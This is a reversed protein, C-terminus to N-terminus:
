MGKMMDVLNRVQQRQGRLTAKKSGLTINVVSEPGDSPQGEEASARSSVAGVLGGTAFRPVMMNNLSDFFGVGFNRVAAARIIYEGRSLRAPISDSTETGPGWVFGGSAYQQAEQATQLTAKITIQIAELQNKIANAANALESQDVVTIIKSTIGGAFQSDIQAKAEAASANDLEVKVQTIQEKAMGEIAKAVEKLAETMREYVAAQEQASRLAEAKEKKLAEEIQAHGETVLQAAAAREEMSRSEDTAIQKALEIEEGALRKAKEMDGSRFAEAAAERKQYLEVVLDAKRQEDDMFSRAVERENKAQSERNAVIAQEISKAKEMYQQFKQLAENQVQELSKYHKQAMSLREALTAQDIAKLAVLKEAETRSSEAVLQKKVNTALRLNRVDEQYKTNLESFVDLQKSIDIQAIQASADKFSVLGLRMRAIAGAATDANLGLQAMATAFARSGQAQSNQVDRIAQMANQVTAMRASFGKMAEDLKKIEAEQQQFQMTLKLQKMYEPIKGGASAVANMAEELRRMAVAIEEPTKAKAAMANLANEVDLLSARVERTQGNFSQVFPKQFLDTTTKVAAAVSAFDQSVQTGDIITIKDLGAAKKAEEFQDGIKKFEMNLTNQEVSPAEMKADIQLRVPESVTAKLDAVERNVDKFKKEAIAAAAELKKVEDVSGTGNAVAERAAALEERVKALAEKQEFFKVALEDAKNLAESTDVQGVANWADKTQDFAHAVRYNADEIKKGWEEWEKKAAKPGKTMLAWAAAVARGMKAHILEVQASLWGFSDMIAAVVVAAADSVPKFSRLFVGIEWGVFLAAGLSAIGMLAVKLGAVAVGAYQMALAIVRSAGAAATGLAPFMAIVATIAARLPAFLSAGMSVIFRSMAATAANAAVTFGALAGRGVVTSLGFADMTVTGTALAASLTAMAAAGGFLSSFFAAISGLVAVAKFAAWAAVLGIVVDKHEVIVKTTDVLIAMLGRMVNGLGRAFDGSSGMEESAKTIVKIFDTVGEVIALYAPLLNDGLTKQLEEQYRSLSAAQKAASGMSAEYTGALKASEVLVANMVGQQKEQKTLESVTKGVSAAYKRQAEEMDVTLGMFRLGQSDMQQINVILRQFTDSSNQGTVVALDQAARALEAAKYGTQANILGAQILKTISDRSSSATIGMKQVSKDMENLIPTSIGANNGVQKLVIALQDARGAVDALGKLFSGAAFAIAVRALNRFGTVAGEIQSAMSTAAVATAGMQATSNAVAGGVQTAASGLGNLGSTAAGTGQALGQATQAFGHLQGQAQTLTAGLENKLRLVIEILNSSM